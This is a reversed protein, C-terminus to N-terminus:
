YFSRWQVRGRDEKVAEILVCEEVTTECSVEEGENM